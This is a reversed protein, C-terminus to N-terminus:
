GPHSRNRRQKLWDTLDKVEQIDLISASTGKIQMSPKIIAAYDTASLPSVQLARDVVVLAYLAGKVATIDAQRKAASVTQFAHAVIAPVSPVPNSVHAPTTVAHHISGGSLMQRDELREVKLQACALPVHRREKTSMGSLFRFLSWSHNSKSPKQM